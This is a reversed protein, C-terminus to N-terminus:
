ESESTRCHVPVRTVVYLLPVVINEELKALAHKRNECNEVPLMFYSCHLWHSRLCDTSVYRLLALHSSCNGGRDCLFWTMNQFTTIILQVSPSCYPCHCPDYVLHTSCSSQALVRYKGRVYFRAEQNLIRLRECLFCPAWNNTIFTGPQWTLVNTSKNQCDYNHHCYM